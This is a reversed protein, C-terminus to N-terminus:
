NILAEIFDFILDVYGESNKIIRLQSKKNKIQLRQSEHM